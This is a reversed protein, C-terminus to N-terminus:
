LSVKFVFFKSSLFSCAPVIFAGIVPLVPGFRTMGAFRNFFEDEAGFVISPRLIVAGPM